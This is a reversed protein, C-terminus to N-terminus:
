VLIMTNLIARDLEATTAVETEGGLTALVVKVIYAIDDETYYDVGRIPTYGDKGKINIPEPNSLGGDNTWSIVGDNSVSPIFTTGGKGGDSITHVEGFSAQFSLDNESFKVNLNM